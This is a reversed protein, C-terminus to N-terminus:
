GSGLRGRGHDLGVMVIRDHERRAVLLLVEPLEGMLQQIRGDRGVLDEVVQAEEDRRFRQRPEQEEVLDVLLDHVGV